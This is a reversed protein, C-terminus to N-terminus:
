VHPSIFLVPLLFRLQITKAKFDLPMSGIAIAKFPLLIVPASKPYFIRLLTM